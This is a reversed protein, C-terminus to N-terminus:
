WLGSWQFCLYRIGPGKRRWVGHRFYTQIGALFLVRGSADGIGTPWREAAQDMSPYLSRWIKIDQPKGERDVVMTLVVSGKINKERADAPYAPEVRHIVRPKRTQPNAARYQQELLKQAEVYKQAYQMESSEQYKTLLEALRKYAQGAKESNSGDQQQYEQLLRKHQELNQQVEKLRAAVEARAKPDLQKDQQLLREHEELSRQVERLRLEIEARASSTRV